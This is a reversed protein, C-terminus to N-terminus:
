RRSYRRHFNNPQVNRSLIICGVGLVFSAVAITTWMYQKALIRAMHDFSEESKEAVPSAEGVEAALPTITVMTDHEEVVEPMSSEEKRALYTDEQNISPVYQFGEDVVNGHKSIHESITVKKPSMSSAPATETKEMSFNEPRKLKLGTASPNLDPLSGNPSEGGNLMNIVKGKKSVDLNSTASFIDDDDHVKGEEISQTFYDEIDQCTLGERSIFQLQETDFRAIDLDRDFESM